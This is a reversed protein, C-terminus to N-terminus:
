GGLAALDTTLLTEFYDPNHVGWSGDDGLMAYDWMAAAQAEPYTGPVLTGNADVLGAKQLAATLQDYLDHVKTQVGNYDFTDLGSHCGQCNATDPAMTHNANEGMHCAPCGDAVLQYHASPSGDTSGGIGMLVTSQPGHHPGWHTSDVTVTGDAAAAPFEERPQHCNACLNGNGMDFTQGSVYLVVPDVTELAFDDSTFTTHIQHCTRCDQRTPDPQGDTVDNPDSIGAAIRESFGQGAHCGACSASTGRLYSTGTGHGSMAWELEKGTITSGDNHCQTCTLDAATMTAAAGAEGQPGAPGAPGAPGEPGIPGAPGTCAAVVLALVALLM